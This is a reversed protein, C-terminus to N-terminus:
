FPLTQLSIVNQSILHHYHWFGNATAMKYNLNSTLITNSELFQFEMIHKKSLPNANSMRLKEFSCNTNPAIFSHLIKFRFFYYHIIM